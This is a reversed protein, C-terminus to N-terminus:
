DMLKLALNECKAETELWESEPDSDETIGAGAYYVVHTSTINALRINVFFDIGTASTPGWFGTYLKRDHKETDLLIQKTLDKPMGCVASTPNLLELLKSELNPINAEKKKILFESKLHFLKGTQSTRPGKEEFERLRLKKFCNIIYRSVLAQEEIEKQSWAAQKVTKNMALQTGALAVTEIKEEDSHILLEPSAGLWCGHDKDYFLCVFGEPYSDCLTLYVDIISSIYNKTVKTKSFVIKHVEGSIVKDIGSQVDKLYDSKDTSSVSENKSLSDIFDTDDVETKLNNQEIKIISLDNFGYFLGDFGSVVFNDESLIPQEIKSLQGEIFTSHELGRKRHLVFSKKNTVISALKIM